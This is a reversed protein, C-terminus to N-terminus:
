IVPGLLGIGPGAQELGDGQRGPRDAASRLLVPSCFACRRRVDINTMQASFDKDGTTFTEFAVVSGPGHIKEFAEKFFEALGKPTTPPSTTCCPPRKPGWNKPPSLQRGRPGPLSGPFLRPFRLSPGPHHQPQHVLPQDHPHCTTPWKVPRCPRAPLSPDSSGLVGGETILKTSVKVASEAKYENDDYVFKLNYAKGGVEVTPVAKKLYM